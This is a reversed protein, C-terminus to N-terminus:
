RTCVFPIWIKAKPIMIAQHFSTLINASPSIEMQRKGEILFNIANDMDIDWFYELDTEGIFDKEYNPANYFYCIIRPTVRVEKGQVPVMEWMHGEINRSENDRLSAYFEQVISVVDSDKLITWFHEWRHYRVLPWIEKCFIM